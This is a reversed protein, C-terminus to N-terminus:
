GLRKMQKGAEKLKGGVRDTERDLGDLIDKQVDLEGGIMMGLERQRRLIATLADLKTDQEAVYSDQLQLLGQNDLPRTAKTEGGSTSSSFGLVRSPAKSGGLLASRAASSVGQPSASGSTAGGTALRPKVSASKGLNEAQDQLVGLMQGRRHLEGQPMGQKALSELGKTLAGIRVVLDVLGKRSEANAAHAGSDGRALMVDRKGIEVKLNRSLTTLLAHEATWSSPTFAIVKEGEVGKGAPPRLFEIFAKSSSWRAEKSSLIARIWGELATRREIM